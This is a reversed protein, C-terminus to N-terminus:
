FIAYIIRILVPLIVFLSWYANRATKNDVNKNRVIAFFSWLLLGIIAVGSAVVVAPTASIFHLAMLGVMVWGLLMNYKQLLPASTLVTVPGTEGLLRALEGPNEIQVPILIDGTDNNGKITFSGNAHKTISAIDKKPIRITPTDAQERVLDHAEVTLTYSELWQQQRKLGKWLGFGMSIALLLGLILLVDLDFSNKGALVPLIGVTFYILAIVFTSNLVTKRRVQAFSDPSIKFQHM